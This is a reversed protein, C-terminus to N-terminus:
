PVCPLVGVVSGISMIDGVRSCHSRLANYFRAASVAAMSVRPESINPHVAVQACAFITALCSWIIDQTART